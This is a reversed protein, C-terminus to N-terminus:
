SGSGSGDGSIVGKLFAELAETYTANEEITPHGSATRELKFTYFGEAIGGLERCVSVIQEAFTDNMTNYVCVIKCDEGNKERITELMAKYADAFTEANIGNTGRKIYDNTGMNVVVIDAKREFGYMATANRLPSSMLYGSTMNPFGTGHFIVGQGSLATVAYDANLRQSLLYPYAYTGDQAAYTGDHNGVVGWGCSISDGVFEIYLDKDAPANERLTGYYSMSYLQARALTHGTVKILRVTVEGTPVDKLSITSKGNVIFYPSSGINNWEVGNVYARFYCPKDSEAELTISGGLSNLVFEIGSCTWDCNIQKEEESVYQREGLIKIGATTSNLETTTLSAEPLDDGDDGDGDDTPGANGGTTQAPKTTGGDPSGTDDSDGTQTACGVFGFILMGCLLVAIIKKIM